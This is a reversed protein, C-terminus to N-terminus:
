MSQLEPFAIAETQWGTSNCILEDTAWHFISENASLRRNISRKISSRTRIMSPSPGGPCPLTCIKQSIWWLGTQDLLLVQRENQGDQVGHEQRGAGVRSELLGMWWGNRARGDEV